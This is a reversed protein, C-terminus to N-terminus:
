QTLGFMPESGRRSPGCCAGPFGAPDGPRGSGGPGWCTRFGFLLSIRRRLTPNGRMPNPSLIRSTMTGGGVDDWGAAPQSAPLSSYSPAETPFLSGRVSPLALQGASLADIRRDLGVRWSALEQNQAALASRLAQIVARFSDLEQRLTHPSLERRPSARSADSASRDRSPRVVEVVEVPASASAATGFVSLPQRGPSPQPLSAVPAPLALSASASALDDSALAVGASRRASKSSRSSKSSARSGASAARDRKRGSASRTSVDSPNM